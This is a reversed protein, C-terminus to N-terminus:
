KIVFYVKYNSDFESRGENIPYRGDPNIGVYLPKRSSLTVDGDSEYFLKGKSNLAAIVQQSPFDDKTVQDGVPWMGYETHYALIASMLELRDAKEKTDRARHKMKMTAPILLGALIGIIGIVALVELLTMGRRQSFIKM